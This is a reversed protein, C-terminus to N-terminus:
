ILPVEDRHLTLELLWWSRAREVHCPAQSIRVVSMVRWGEAHRTRLTSCLEHESVLLRLDGDSSSQRRNREM